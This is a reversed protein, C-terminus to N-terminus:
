IILVEGPHKEQKPNERQTRCRDSNQRSVAISEFGTMPVWKVRKSCFLAGRWNAVGLEYEPFNSFELHNLKTFHGCTRLANESAARRRRHGQIFITCHDYPTIQWNSSRSPQDARSLRDLNFTLAHNAQTGNPHLNGSGTPPLGSCQSTTQHQLTKEM